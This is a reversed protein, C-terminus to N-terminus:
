FGLDQLIKQKKIEFQLEENKYINELYEELQKKHFKVRNGFRHEVLHPRIYKDFTKEDMGCLKAAEKRTILICM